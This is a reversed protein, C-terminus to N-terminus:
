SLPSVYWESAVAFGLGHLMARKPEDLHGCVVVSLVAGRAQSRTQAEALLAAGITQWESRPNVAFDDIMCVPGGPAYVPPANVVSAILFGQIDKAQEYM